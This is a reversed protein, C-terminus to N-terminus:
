HMSGRTSNAPSSIAVSSRLTTKKTDILAPLYGHAQLWHHFLQPWGDIPLNQKRMGFGHGGKEFVHIEAPINATRWTDYARMSNGAPSVLPDDKACVTFLPINSAPPVLPTPALPYIAAIFDPRAGAESHLAMDLALFGGASFGIVGIRNPALGWQAAHARVIRMSKEGDALILPTMQRLVPDLGGPTKIRHMMVFPFAANTETLRYELVFATIGLSNLYRAVDVGESAISLIHFGGGPCVIMATGNAKGPPPFYATLTPNVVNRVIRNSGEGLSSEKQTWNESGPAAGPWIRIVQPSNSTSLVDTPPIAREIIDNPTGHFYHWLLLFAIAALLSFSILIWRFLIRWKIKM